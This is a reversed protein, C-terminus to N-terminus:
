EIFSEHRKNLERLNKMYQFIIPVLLIVILWNLISIYSVLSLDSLNFTNMVAFFLNMFMLITFLSIIRQLHKKRSKYDTYIEFPEDTAKKRFYAWNSYVEVCEIGAEEMFELYAKGKDTTPADELYEICYDYIGPEGKEFTYRGIKYGVLHWGSKEMENIWKEEKQYNFFIKTKKLNM